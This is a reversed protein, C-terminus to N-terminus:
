RQTARAVAARTTIQGAIVRPTCLGGERERARAREQERPLHPRPNARTHVCTGQGPVLYENADGGKGQGPVLYENADGSAGQGPVLYSAAAGVGTDGSSAFSRDGNVAEDDVQLPPGRCGGRERADPSSAQALVGRAYVTCNM